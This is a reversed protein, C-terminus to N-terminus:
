CRGCSCKGNRELLHTLRQDHTWAEREFMEFLAIDEPSFPNGQREREAMSALRRQRAAEVEAPSLRPPSSPM